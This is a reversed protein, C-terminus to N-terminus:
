FLPVPRRNYLLVGTNAAMRGAVGAALNNRYPNAQAAVGPLVQNGAAGVNARNVHIDHDRAGSIRYDLSVNGNNDSTLFSSKIRQPALGEKGPKNYDHYLIDSAVQEIRDNFDLEKTKNKLVQAIKAANAMSEGGMENAIKSDNKLVAIGGFLYKLENQLM